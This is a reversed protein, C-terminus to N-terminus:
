RSKKQENGAADVCFLLDSMNPDIGGTNNGRLEDFDKKKLDNIYPEDDVDDEPEDNEFVTVIEKALYLQVQSLNEHHIPEEEVPITDKYHSKDFSELLDIAGTSHQPTQPVDEIPYKSM